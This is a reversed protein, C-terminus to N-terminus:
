AAATARRFRVFYLVAAAAIWAAGIYAAKRTDADLYSGIVVGLEGVVFLVPFVPHMPARFAVGESGERRRLM